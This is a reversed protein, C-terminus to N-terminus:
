WYLGRNPFAKVEVNRRRFEHLVQKAYGEANREAISYEAFTISGTINDQTEICDSYLRLFRLAPLGSYSVLDSSQSLENLLAVELQECYHYIQYATAEIAKESSKLSLIRNRDLVITSAAMDCYEYQGDTLEQLVLTPVTPLNLRESEMNILNQLAMQKGNEDLSKWSSQTLASLSNVDEIEIGYDSTKEWYNIRSVIDDHIGYYRSLLLASIFCTIVAFELATELILAITDKVDLKTSNDKQGGELRRKRIEMVESCLSCFSSILVAAILGCLLWLVSRFGVMSFASLYCLAGGYFIPMLLIGTVYHYKKVLYLTLFVTVFWLVGALLVYTRSSNDLDYTIGLLHYSYYSEATTFIFSALFPFPSIAKTKL